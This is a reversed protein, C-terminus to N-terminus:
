SIGVAALAAGVTAAGAAALRPRGVAELVVLRLGAGTRKKDQAVLARVREGDLGPAATPLGLRRIVETQRDEEAFGALLAGARGAAVM